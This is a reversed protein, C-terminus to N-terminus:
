LLMTNGWVGESCAVSLRSYISFTHTWFHPSCTRTSLSFIRQGTIYLWHTLLFTYCPLIVPIHFVAWHSSVATVPLSGTSPQKEFLLKLCFRRLRSEWWFLWRNLDAQLIHFLKLRNQNIIFYVQNSTLLEKRTIQLYCQDYYIRVVSVVDGTLSQSLRWLLQHDTM